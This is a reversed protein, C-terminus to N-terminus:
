YMHLSNKSMTVMGRLAPPSAPDENKSAKRSTNGALGKTWKEVEGKVGEDNSFSKGGMHLKLSTFLNYDSYYNMDM